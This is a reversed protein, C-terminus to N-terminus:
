TCLSKVEQDGTVRRIEHDGTYPRARACPVAAAACVRRRARTSLHRALLYFTVMEFSLGSAHSRSAITRPTLAYSTLSPRGHHADHRRSTSSACRLRSAEARRCTWRELGGSRGQLSMAPHPNVAARVRAVGAGVHCRFAGDSDTLGQESWARISERGGVGQLSAILAGRDDIAVFVITAGSASTPGTSVIVLCAPLSLLAILPLLLRWAASPGRHM